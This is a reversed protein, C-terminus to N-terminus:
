AKTLGELVALQVRYVIMPGARYRASFRSRWDSQVPVQLTENIFWAASHRVKVRNGDAYTMIQASCLRAVHSVVFVLQPPQLPVPHGRLAYELAEHQSQAAKLTAELLRDTEESTCVADPPHLVQQSTQAAPLPETTALADVDETRHQADQQKELERRLAAKRRSVRKRSQRPAEPRSADAEAVQASGLRCM